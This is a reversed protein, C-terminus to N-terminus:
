AESSREDAVDALIGKSAEALWGESTYSSIRVGAMHVRCLDRAGRGADADGLPKTPPKKM